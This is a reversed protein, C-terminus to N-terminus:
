RWWRKPKHEGCGPKDLGVPIDYTSGMAGNPAITAKPPHRHCIGTDEQGDLPVMFRCTRCTPMM